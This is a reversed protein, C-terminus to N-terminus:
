LCRNQGSDGKVLVPLELLELIEDCEYISYNKCSLLINKYALFLDSGELKYGTRVVYMMSQSEMNYRDTTCAIGTISEMSPRNHPPLM